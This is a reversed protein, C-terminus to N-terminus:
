TKVQASQASQEERVQKLGDQVFSLIVVWVVFGLVIEKLYLPPEFNCDWIAHMAVALGLVRLFRLDTVMNWDFRRDGRVKWLAAGVIAAWLVHGGLISLWARTKIVQTMVQMSGSNWLYNFAYGSSEFAAFGTGIAAGLLMGNLTWRYKLKNIVLLLAAAKGIEEVIGVTVVGIGSGLKAFFEYLFSTVILSLIGGVLVMKLVQYLSINRLVNTEFFLILISFPVAFSGMMMLGPLLNTNTFENWAFLFALYVVMSLAFARFFLWPKPWSSDVQALDPTTTPGGVNFFAEVEDDSHKSFVESFTGRFDFGQIREVGAVSSITSGINDIFSSFSNEGSSGALQWTSRGIRAQQGPELIGEVAAHGDVFVTAPPTARYSVKGDALRFSVHQEATDPDDSLLNCQTSRGITVGTATIAVRKGGDPGAICSFLVRKTSETQTSV